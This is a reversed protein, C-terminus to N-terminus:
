FLHGTREKKTTLYRINHPNSPFSHPVREAVSVGAKELARVKEPNNTLLRVSRVGLLRLMAAAPAFDREDVAFGQRLNADVTDFGQDQLAYARVKNTLGIGRGEQPLYLLIGAGASAIAALAGRLQDGCDCKLSGLFDGTLCASHLRTLVPGETDPAGIVLAMLDEGRMETRFTVIETSEHLDLPLRARAAIRMQAAQLPRYDHVDASRVTTLGATLEAAPGPAEAPSPAIPFAIVAPLLGALKALGIAEAAPWRPQTREPQFPGKFPADLDQSPDAAAVAFAAPRDNPLPLIVADSTYTPIHLTHARHPSIALSGDGCRSRLATLLDAQVTEPATLIAAGDPGRLYVPLGLRLDYVAREVAAARMRAILPDGTPAKGAGPDTGATM